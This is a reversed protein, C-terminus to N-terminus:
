YFSSRKKKSGRESKIFNEVDREINNYPTSKKMPNKGLKVIEYHRNPDLYTDEKTTYVDTWIGTRKSVGEHHRKGTITFEKGDKNRIVAGNWHDKLKQHWTNDIDHHDEKYGPDAVPGSMDSRGSKHKSRLPEINIRVHGKEGIDITAQANIKNKKLTDNIAKLQGGFQKNAREYQEEIQHDDMWEDGDPGGGHDHREYRAIDNTGFWGRNDSHFTLNSADNLIEHVKDHTHEKKKVEKIKEENEKHKAELEKQVKSTEKESGKPNRKTSSMTLYESQEAKSFDGRTRHSAFIQSIPVDVKILNEDKFGAFFKAKDIDETWSSLTDMPVDDFKKDNIKEGVGRYLTVKGDPHEQKLKAQTLDYEAKIIQRLRDVKAGSQSEIYGDLQEGILDPNKVRNKKFFKDDLKEGLMDEHVVKKVFNAMPDQPNKIYLDMAKDIFKKEDNSFGLHDFYDSRIKDMDDPTANLLDKGKLFSEGKDRDIDDTKGTLKNIKEKNEKHVSIAEKKESIVKPTKDDHGEHPELTTKDGMKEVRHLHEEHFKSHVADDHKDHHIQGGANLGGPKILKGKKNGSLAVWGDAHKVYTYKGYKRITGIPLAKSKVIDLVQIHLRNKQDETLSNYEDNTYLSKILNIAEQTYNEM